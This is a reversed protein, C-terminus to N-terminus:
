GKRIGECIAAYDTVPMQAAWAQARARREEDAARVSASYRGHKVANRNAPQGGRKRRNAAIHM